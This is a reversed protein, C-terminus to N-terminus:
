VRDSFENETMGELSVSGIFDDHEVAVCPGLKCGGLCPGEDVQVSSFTGSKARSYFAGFTSLEDMGMKERQRSCSSSMCTVIKFKEAVAPDCSEQDDSLKSHHLRPRSFSNSITRAPQFSRAPSVICYLVISSVVTSLAMKM